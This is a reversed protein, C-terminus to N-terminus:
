QLIVLKEYKEATLGSEKATVSLQYIYVGKGLKQGFDDLGDWTLSRSLGSGNALLNANSITKVLKGSVTFIHISVSLNENPKNHNFWFETYNVFPNPYNLVNELLFESDDIVNFSLSKESSNNYTDWSKILITHLGTTLNRLPYAVSGKTFDGLEGEYFENLIIPNSVDGDLIATINHGIASKSTNIGSADEFNIKLTPNENTNGGDAFSEDNMFVSMVPGENDVIANNNIGGIVTQLDYGGKDLIGNEAYLSIKAKGYAVKIDKPVIFEMSFAGNVAQAKGKFVRSDQVDFTMVVGFGDNDLTKKDIAKDFISASVTGNFDTLKNKNSDTVIGELKIKSLASITDRAVAIDKDNIKTLKVSGKPTKLKMAPDGFPFIFYHQGSSSINENKTIMLAEAITYDEGNFSFLKSILNRNFQRGYSIFVERTTSIMSASGGNTNLLVEEGPSLKDPNDFKTFDCTVTILLPLKNGNQWAKIESIGLLREHGWGVEGGHGFYDIVLSGKEVSNTLAVNFDPYSDGSSSKVQKFADAYLKKINYQPKAATILDSILEVDEQIVKESESELDDAVMTVENRWDGFADQNYYKLIKDVMIEAERVTSCLVRGTVVDQTDTTKMLGESAGMMGYYDDTVYSYVLGFSDLALYVPVINKGINEKVIDKYDYTADGFLCLYKIRTSESTANDYLFKVFDRIATIDKSGSGFENYIQNLDVVQVTLNSNTRHHNAVREAQAMFDKQAVIVYQIDKLGHLNQNDIRGVTKPTYYDADNLVVYENLVGTSVSKFTYNSSGVTANAITKPNLFDTVDWIEKVNTENSITYQIVSGTNKSIYNRFNFQNGRAILNKFGIVEIVDLNASGSANGKQNYTIEFNLNETTVIKNTSNSNVFSKIFSTSSIAAFNVDFLSETNLKVNFLSNTSSQAIGNVKIFLEKTVDIDKFNLQYNRVLVETLGFQDGFWQRGVKYLNNKEEELVIFDKFNSVIDTAADTVVPASSIRKGLGSDVSIFYYSENSYYNTRHKISAESTLTWDNPGKSYFLVYDNDNFQGDAEGFVYVANEQLNAYRFDSNLEPLMAGGNGFIRINKPDISNTNIGLSNLFSKTIKFVGSKDTSFKYWTGSQLVSNEVLAKTTKLQKTGLTYELDFSVIRKVNTGDLVLPLLFLNAINNDSSSSVNFEAQIKSPISATNINELASKEMSQYVVNILQYSLVSNNKKVSWSSAFDPLGNATIMNGKVFPVKVHTGEMSIGSNLDWDLVFSKVQKSQSFLNLFCFLFVATSIKKLAM